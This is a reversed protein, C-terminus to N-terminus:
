RNFEKEHEKKAEAFHEDCLTKIWHLGPRCTRGPEGCVECTKSSQTEAVSIALHFKRYQDADKTTRAYYRLAGFKEKVQQLEFDPDIANLKEELERLIPHWGDGVNNASTMMPSSQDDFASTM